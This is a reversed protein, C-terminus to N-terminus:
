ATAPGDITGDKNITFICPNPIMPGFNGRAIIKNSEIKYRGDVAYGGLAIYAKGDKFEANIQDSPDRYKGEASGSGCAAAAFSLRGFCLPVDSQSDFFDEHNEGQILGSRFCKSRREKSELAALPEGDSEAQCLIPRGTAAFAHPHYLAMRHLAVEASGM